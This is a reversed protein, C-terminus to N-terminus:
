PDVYLVEDLTSAPPMDADPEQTEKHEAIQEMLLKLKNEYFDTEKTLKM